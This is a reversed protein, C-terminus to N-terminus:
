YACNYVNFNLANFEGRTSQIECYNNMIYKEYFGAGLSM